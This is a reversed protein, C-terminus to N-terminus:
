CRGDIGYLVKIVMQLNSRMNEFSCLNFFFNFRPFQLFIACGTQVLIQVYLKFILKNNKMIM